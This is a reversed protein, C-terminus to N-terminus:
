GGVARAVNRRAEDLGANLRGMRHAEKVEYHYKLLDKARKLDVDDDHKDPTNSSASQAPAQSSTHSTTLHPNPNPNPNPNPRASVLALAATPDCVRLSVLDSLIEAVTITNEKEPIPKAM